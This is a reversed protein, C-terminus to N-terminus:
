DKLLELAPVLKETPLGIINNFSGKITDVIMDGYEQIAYAEAKDLPNVFGFYRDIINLDLKKFRVISDDIFRCCIFKNLCLIAVGSIVKHERGSLELLFQQAQNMDYPKGYIKDGCYVITDVGIVVDDPYKLAVALAKNYSHELPLSQKYPLGNDNEEYDSPICKFQTGLNTLLESRRPSKSALILM